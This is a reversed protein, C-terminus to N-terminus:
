CFCFSGGNFSSEFGCCLLGAKSTQSTASEDDEDFREDLLPEDKDQSDSELLKERFNNLVEEDNPAQPIDRSYEYVKRAPTMGLSMRTM